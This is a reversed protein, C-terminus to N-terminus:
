VPRGPRVNCTYLPKDCGGFSFKNCMAQMVQTPSPNATKRPGLYWLMMGGGNHAQAHLGQHTPTQALAFCALM